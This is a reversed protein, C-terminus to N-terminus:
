VRNETEALTEQLSDIRERFARSGVLQREIRRVLNNVSDPHNLGFAAALERLTATTLRRALWAAVDRAESGSRRERFAEASVGYHAAAADLVREPNVNRLRRAAPVQDEHAPRELQERIRQVFAASGLLWGHVAKRLPNEPPETLGAEVFRRYAVEAQQGGMEGEWARYLADYCVWDVRRRRDAYGPYSSWPWDRPHSVLPRKGRVPNLHLYRSVTWFYSEDEILEGRFRGQFLHGSRHYRKAYWNAYGSLLYQMGRSLNAQPTQVLLHVHQAHLRVGAVELRLTGRDPGTGGPFTRVGRGRPVGGAARQRPGDRPLDRQSVRNAPATGHGFYVRESSGQLGSVPDSGVSAPSRTLYTDLVM